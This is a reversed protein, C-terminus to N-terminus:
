LNGEDLSIFGRNKDPFHFDTIPVVSSDQEQYSHFNAQIKPLLHPHDLVTNTPINTANNIVTGVDGTDTDYDMTDVRNQHKRLEDIISTM